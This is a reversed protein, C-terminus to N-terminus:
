ITQNNIQLDSPLLSFMKLLYIGYARGSNKWIIIRIEGHINSKIHLLQKYFEVIFRERKSM